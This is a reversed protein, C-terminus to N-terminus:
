SSWNRRFGSRSAIAAANTAALLYPPCERLHSSGYFRSRSGRRPQRWCEGIKHALTDLAVACVLLRVSEDDEVPLVSQGDGDPRSKSLRPAGCHVFIPVRIM